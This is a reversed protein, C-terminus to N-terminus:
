SQILDSIFETRYTTAAKTTGDAAPKANGQRSTVKVQAAVQQKSLLEKIAAVDRAVNDCEAPTKGLIKSCHGKFREVTIRCQTQMNAVTVQNMFNPVLMFSAGKWVLGPKSPDYGPANADPLVQYHFQAEVCPIKVDSGGANKYKYTSAKMTLDTILCEHIGDEPWEGQLGAGTNAESQQYADNMSNFMAAVQPDIQEAM